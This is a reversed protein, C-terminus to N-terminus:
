IFHPKERSVDIVINRYAFDRIKSKDKSCHKLVSQIRKFQEDAFNETEDAHSIIGKEIMIKITHDVATDLDRQENYRGLMGLNVGNGVFPMIVYSCINAKRTWFGAGIAVDTQYDEFIGKKKTGM